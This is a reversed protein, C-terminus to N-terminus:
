FPINDEDLNDDGANAYPDQPAPAGFGGAYGDNARPASSDKTSLMRMDDAVVDFASRKQGDATEYTRTQLRGEIAVLKGKTLYQGCIEALRDWAVIPIFDATQEGSGKRARRDVALRFRAYAVGNPTAKQEVDCALRGILIVRNLSSM